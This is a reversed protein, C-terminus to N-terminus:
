GGRGEHWILTAMRGCTGDRRYSFFEAPESATCRGGGYVETVGAAALLSRAVACLDAHWHGARASPRFAGPDAASLAARVEEGVEYARPGIAPGLWAMLRGPALATAAVGAEVIGAAMGRWGAHLAAVTTGARDCLLVPLCDATLVACVTGRHRAVAGDARPRGTAGDAEICTPGHVQELWLPECPLDAASALARRNAAVAQPSDGVHDALNLGAYPGASCGGRRTTSLARVTSPAPWQPSLWQPPEVESM